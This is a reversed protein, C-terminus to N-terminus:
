AMLVVCLANQAMNVLVWLSTMTYEDDSRDLGSLDCGKVTGIELDKVGSYVGFLDESYGNVVRTL